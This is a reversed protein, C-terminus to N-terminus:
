FYIYICITLLLVFLNKGFMISSTSTYLQNEYSRVESKRLSNKGAWTKKIWWTVEPCSSITSLSEWATTLQMGNDMIIHSNQTKWISSFAYFKFNLIAAQKHPWTYTKGSLVWNTNASLIVSSNLSSSVDSPWRAWGGAGVMDLCSKCIGLSPSEVAERAAQAINMWRWM